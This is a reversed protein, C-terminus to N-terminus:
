EDAMGGALVAAARALAARTEALRREGLAQAVTRELQHIRQEAVDLAARGVETVLVVRARRDAPDVRRRVLGRRELYTVLEGMSQQTMGAAEALATIRSGAPDLYRFVAYHAPRLRDDLRARLEDNLAREYAATAQSLLKLLTPEGTSM